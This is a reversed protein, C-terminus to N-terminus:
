PIITAGPAETLGSTAGKLGYAVLVLEGDGNKSRVVGFIPVKSSLWVSSSPRSFKKSVFPGAPTELRESVPPKLGKCVKGNGLEEPLCSGDMVISAHSGKGVLVKEPPGDLWGPVLWKVFLSDNQDFRRAELWYLHSKGKREEGVIAYELQWKRGNLTVDYRAWHGVRWAPAKVSDRGCGFCFVV